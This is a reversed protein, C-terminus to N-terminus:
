RYAIVFTRKFPFLVRGDTRTPYSQRVREQLRAVFQDSEGDSELVDLFPRLGTSAIWDVIASPSDMVHFYETEWIDLARAGPALHDYYFSPPEMTLAGLPGAMRPAWPGDLAIKHILVRVLAYDASPVQFALAGGAAVHGFLREVLPGHDPLWQLAANSFVIDFAADPRWDEIASHIWDGDPHEERAVAIMQASSDLGTVSASPWRGQLIRTSNGPGCGLDIVSLPSEVAIRSALDISPRTREDGFRMYGSPDWSGM